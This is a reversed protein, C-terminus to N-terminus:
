TTTSVAEVMILSTMLVRLLITSIDGFTSLTADSRHCVFIDEPVILRSAVSAMCNMQSQSVRLIVRIEHGVLLDGPGHCVFQSMADM